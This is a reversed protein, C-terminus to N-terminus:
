KKINTEYVEIWKEPTIKQALEGLLEYPIDGMRKLRLCSKGMDLKYKSYKPYEGVFWDFIEPM